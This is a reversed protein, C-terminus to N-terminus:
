AGGKAALRRRVDSIAGERPWQTGDDPDIWFGRDGPTWRASELLRREAAELAALPDAAQEAAARHQARCEDWLLQEDETIPPAIEGFLAVCLARHATVVDAAGEGEISGEYRWPALTLALERAADVTKLAEEYSPLREERGDDLVRFIAVDSCGCRVMHARAGSATDLSPFVHLPIDTESPGGFAGSHDYAFVPWGRRHTGRVVYGKIAM